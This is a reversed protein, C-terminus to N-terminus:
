SKEDVALALTQEPPNLYLGAICVVKERLQPDGSFEFSEIRHPQLRHAQWIRHVTSYSVGVMKALGRASWHTVSEPSALTAAIIQSVKRENVKRPRGVKSADQRDALALKAHRTRWPGVTNVSGVLGTQSIARNEMGEAALLIKDAWRVLQQPSTSGRKWHLLTRRDEHPLEINPAIRAVGGAYCVRPWLVPSHRSM